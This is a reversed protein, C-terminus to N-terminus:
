HATMNFKLVGGKMIETYNLEPTSLAKQNLTPQENYINQKSFHAAKM